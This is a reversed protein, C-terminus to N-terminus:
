TAWVSDLIPLMGLFLLPFEHSEDLQHYEHYFLQRRSFEVGGGRAVSRGAMLPAVAVRGDIEM